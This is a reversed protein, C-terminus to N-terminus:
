TTVGLTPVTGSIVGTMSWDMTGDLVDNYDIGTLFATGSSTVQLGGTAGFFLVVDKGATAEIDAAVPAETAGTEWHGSAAFSARYRSRVYERRSASDMGTGEAVDGEYDFSINTIGGLTAGDFDIQCGVGARRGAM